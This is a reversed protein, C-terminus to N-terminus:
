QKQAPCGGLHTLWGSVMHAEFVHDCECTVGCLLLLLLLLHYSLKGTLTCSRPTALASGVDIRVDAHPAAAHWPEHAVIAGSCLLLTKVRQKALVM